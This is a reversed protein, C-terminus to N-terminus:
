RSTQQLAKNHETVGILDKYESEIINRADDLRPKLEHIWPDYLEQLRNEHSENSDSYIKLNTLSTWVSNLFEYISKQSAESFYLKKREFDYYYEDLTKAAKDLREKAPPRERGLEDPQIAWKCELWVDALLEYNLTISDFRKQSITNLRHEFLKAKESLVSKTAELGASYIAKEQELQQDLKSKENQVIRKSWLKGLWASMGSVVLIGVGSLPLIEDIFFRCM